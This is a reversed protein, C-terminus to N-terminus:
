ISIFMKGTTKKIKLLNIKRNHSILNKQQGLPILTNFKEKILDSKVFSLPTPTILFESIYKKKWFCITQSRSIWELVKFRLTIDKM